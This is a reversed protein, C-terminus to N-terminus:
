CLEISGISELQQEIGQQQMSHSEHGLFHLPVRACALCGKKIADTFDTNDRRTVVCACSLTLSKTVVMAGSVVNLFFSDDMAAIATESTRRDTTKVVLFM